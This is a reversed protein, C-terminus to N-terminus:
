HARIMNTIWGPLTIRESQRGDDGLQFMTTNAFEEDPAYTVVHDDLMRWEGGETSPKQDPLLEASDDGIHWRYWMYGAAFRTDEWDDPKPDVLDNHWAHILAVDDGIVRLSGAPHGGTLKELDVNFDPDLENNKAGLRLGCSASGHEGGFVERVLAHYDWPSFYM